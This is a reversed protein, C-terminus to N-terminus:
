EHRPMKPFSSPANEESSSQYNGFAAAVNEHDIEDHFPADTNGPISPCTSALNGWQGTRPDATVSLDPFSTQISQVVTQGLWEHGTKSFHLGDFLYTAWDNTTKATTTTKPDDCNVMSSQMMLNYIDCCPLARDKAVQACVTAYKGTNELTRELKGTAKDGYKQKQFVLRQEHHVPPPTLLMINQACNTKAQVRDILTNLNTQYDELSVYHHDALGPIGADNAGFWLLVLCCRSSAEQPFVTEDPLQLYFKTNYGAFGRNIVDVRRQYVNALHAGWGEWCLQTLSDGLLLITRRPQSPGKLAFSHLTSAPATSM